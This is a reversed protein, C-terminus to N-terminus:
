RHIKISELGVLLQDDTSKRFTEEGSEITTTIVQVEHGAKTFKRAFGASRYNGTTNVPPFEPCIM